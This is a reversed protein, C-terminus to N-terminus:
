KLLKKIGRYIVMVLCGSGKDGKNIVKYIYGGIEHGLFFAVVFFVYSIFSFGVECIIRLAVIFPIPLHIALFWQVSFKKVNARWYGFPLNFIIIILSLYIYKLMIM